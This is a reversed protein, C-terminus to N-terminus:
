SSNKRFVDWLAYQRESMPSFGTTFIRGNKLYVAQQPKTGPHCINELPHPPVGPHANVGDWGDAAERTGPRRSKAMVGTGSTVPPSPTRYISRLDVKVLDGDRSEDQQPVGLPCLRVPGLTLVSGLLGSAPFTCTNPVAPCAGLRAVM